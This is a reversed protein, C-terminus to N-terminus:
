GCTLTWVQLGVFCRGSGSAGEEAARCGACCAPEEGAAGEVRAHRGRAQAGRAARRPRAGKWHASRESCVICSHQAIWCCYTPLQCCGALCAAADPSHAPGSRQASRQAALTTAWRVRTHGNRWQNGEGPDVAPRGPHHHVSAASRGALGSPFHPCLRIATGSVHKSATFCNLQCRSPGIQLGLRAMSCQMWCPHTARGCGPWAWRVCRLCHGPFLRAGGASSGGDGAFSRGGGSAGGGQHGAPCLTHLCAVWLM